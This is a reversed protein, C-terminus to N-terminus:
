DLAGDRVARTGSFREWRAVAVDVFAPSRELAYCSRGSMEAAIIATGSGCFPEYLLEAIKTHYEIPRRVVEVPKMTPHIGAAGDEIRSDIAWLAASGAPPRRASPPRQGRRWGYMCGEYNWQYDCRSLVSRSKAWILLQHPLLGVAEWAAVVVPLRMVGLWQYVFPREALAVDLALRLYDEYFRALEAVDAYSDWHKTKEQSSIRRGGKAWTQPHNGGTYGVGYPPDTAMLCARAGNMVRGVDAACTADGCLLRHRGLLWLDGPRSVPEAPVEPVEDPDVLGATPQCTLADLEDTEFGLVDIDYDLSALEGIEGSLLDLDWSSEQNTRNDAIRYARAQAPSLDAAIHVPVQTLGLQKAAALRTHGVVVVGHADVVIAQRFGFQTLSAAVKAIASQPCVRPNKGYPIPREIPWLEVSLESAPKPKNATRARPRGQSSAM